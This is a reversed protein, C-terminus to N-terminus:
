LILLAIHFERCDRHRQCEGGARKAQAGSRARLVVAGRGVLAHAVVVLGHAVVVHAMVAGGVDAAVHAMVLAMFATSPAMVPAAPTVVAPIAAGYPAVMATDALAPLANVQVLPPQDSPRGGKRKQRHAVGYGAPRKVGDLTIDTTLM